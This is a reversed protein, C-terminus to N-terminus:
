SNSNVVRLTFLDRGGSRVCISLSLCKLSPAPPSSIARILRPHRLDSPPPPREPRRKSCLCRHPAENLFKRNPWFTQIGRGRVVGRVSSFFGTIWRQKNKKCNSPPHSESFPAITQCKRWLAVFCVPCFGPRSNTGNFGGDCRRKEKSDRLVFSQCVCHLGTELINNYFYLPVPSGVRLSGFPGKLNFLPKRPKKHWVSPTAVHFRGARILLSSPHHPPACLEPAAVFEFIRCTM